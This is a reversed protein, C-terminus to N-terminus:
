RRERPWATRIRWLAVDPNGNAELQQYVRELTEWLGLWAKDGSELYRSRTWQAMAVVRDGTVPETGGLVARGVRELDSELIRELPTFRWHHCRSQITAILTDPWETMLLFYVRAPPEELHKLLYSEAERGLADAPRIVIVKAPSWLPGAALTSVADHVADRGITKPAPLLEVYDPHSSVGMRCSRCTCDAEGSGECLVRRVLGASVADLTEAPGSIILAQALHGRGYAEVMDQLRAQDSSNRMVTSMSWM